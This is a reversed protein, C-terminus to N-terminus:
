WCRSTSSARWRVARRRCCGLWSTIPFSPWKSVAHETLAALFPTPAMLDGAGDEAFLPRGPVAFGQDDPEPVDLPEDDGADWPEPERGAAAERDLWATYEAWEADVDGVADPQLDPRFSRDDDPNGM